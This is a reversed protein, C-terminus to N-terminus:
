NNKEEKKKEEKIDKKKNKNKKNKNLVKDKIESFQMSYKNFELNPFAKILRNHFINTKEIISNKVEELQKIVESNKALDKGNESIKEALLKAEKLKDKLNFLTSITTVIDLLTLSILGGVIYNIIWNPILGIFKTTLPHIFYMVLVGLIGFPIATALCVRGNINLFENSYDWWKANFIKEMLFSTIYELTTTVLISLLFVLLPNSTFPSLLLVIFLGGFGYIPCYPGSLFGRNTWNGHVIRCYVVECIWGLVSYIFLYLFYENFNM